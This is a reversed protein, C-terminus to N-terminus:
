PRLIRPGASPDRAPQHWLHEARLGCGAPLTAAWEVLAVMGPFPRGSLLSGFGAMGGGGNVWLLARSWSAGRGAVFALESFLASLGM